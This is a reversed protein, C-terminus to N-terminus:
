KGWDSGCAGAIAKLLNCKSVDHSPNGEGCFCDVHNKSSPVKRIGNSFAKIHRLLTLNDTQLKNPVNAGQPAAAPATTTAANARVAKLKEFETKPLPLTPIAKCHVANHADIVQVAKAQYGDLGLATVDLMRLSDLIPNVGSGDSTVMSELVEQVIDSDTFICKAARLQKAIERLEAFFQNFASSGNQSYVIGQSGLVPNNHLHLNKFLREEARTYQAGVSIKETIITILTHLSLDVHLTRNGALQKILVAGLCATVSKNFNDYFTAVRTIDKANSEELKSKVEQKKLISSSVAEEEAELVAHDERLTKLKKELKVRAALQTRVSAIKLELAAKEADTTETGAIVNRKQELLDAIESSFEDCSISILDLERKLQDVDEEAKACSLTLDDRNVILRRISKNTAEYNIAGPMSDEIPNTLIKQFGFRSTYAIAQELFRQLSAILVRNNGEVHNFIDFTAM